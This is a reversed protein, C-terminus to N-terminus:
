KNEGKSEDSDKDGDLSRDALDDIYKRYEPDGDYLDMLWEKTKSM